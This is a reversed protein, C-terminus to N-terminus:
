QNKQAMTMKPVSVKTSKVMNNYLDASTQNPSMWNKLFTTLQNYAKLTKVETVEFSPDAVLNGTPEAAPAPEKKDAPKKQASTALSVVFLLALLYYSKKM